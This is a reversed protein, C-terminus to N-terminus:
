IIMSYKVDFQIELTFIEINAHVILQSIIVFSKENKHFFLMNYVNGTM